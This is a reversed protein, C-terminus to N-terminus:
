HKAMTPQTVKTVPLADPGYCFQLWLLHVVLPCTLFFAEFWALGHWYYVPPPLPMRCEDSSLTVVLLLQFINPGNAV